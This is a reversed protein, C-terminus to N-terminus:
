SAAGRSPAAVGRPLGRLPVGTPQRLPVDLARISESGISKDYHDRYLRKGVLCYSLWNLYGVAMPLAHAAAYFPYFVNAVIATSLRIPPRAYAHFCTCLLAYTTYTAAFYRPDTVANDPILELSLLIDVANALGAAFLLTSALKFPFLLVSFLGLYVVFNYFSWPGYRGIRVISRWRQSLVRALGFSWGVRQSFWGRVTRKGDTVLVLEEDYVIHQGHELIILTNELDEAYVSLSHQELARELAERRYLSAGCTICHPSLSKRGLVFALEVELLQFSTLAAGDERIRVRPCCAAAGSAQFRRVAQELDPRLPACDPDLVLVTRIEDPLRELLAKLAAPKKRNTDARLCRWGLFELYAATDDDSGDDIIWVNAKYPQLPALVRLAKAQLNHVSMIVAFPHRISDISAVPTPPQAPKAAVLHGIWYRAMIDLLELTALSTAVFYLGVHLEASEDLLPLAFGACALVLGLGLIRKDHQSTM